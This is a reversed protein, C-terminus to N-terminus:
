KQESLRKACFPGLDPEEWSKNFTSLGLDQPTRYDPLNDRATLEERIAQLYRFGFQHSPAVFHGEDWENWNDIMFIKKGWSGEPLADTMEKMRRVVTRFEDPQLYWIKTMYFKYGMDRWHQTYRPTSDWFCSATPVYRTPDIALRQKLLNCQGDIM